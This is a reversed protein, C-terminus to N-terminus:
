SHQILCFENGDPDAMVAWKIGYESIERLMAGGFTEVRRVASELDAVDLDVHARNKGEHRETVQQLLLSPPDEGSGVRCYASTQFSIDRGLVRSWFRASREIDNVDIVFAYLRGVPESRGTGETVPYEKDNLATNDPSL